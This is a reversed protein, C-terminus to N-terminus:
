EPEDNSIVTPTWRPQAKPKDAERPESTVTFTRGDESVDINMKTTPIGFARAVQVLPIELDEATEDDYQLDIVRQALTLLEILNNYTEEDVEYDALLRKRTITEAERCYTKM